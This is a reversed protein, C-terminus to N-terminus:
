NSGAFTLNSKYGIGQEWRGGQHKYIAWKDCVLTVKTYTYEKYSQYTCYASLGWMIWSVVPIVKSGLKAVILSTAKEKAKKSLVNSVTSAGLGPLGLTANNFKFSESFSRFLM